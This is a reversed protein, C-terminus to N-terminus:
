DKKSSFSLLSKGSPLSNSENVWSRDLLKEIMIKKLEDSDSMTEAIRQSMLVSHNYMQRNYFYTLQKISSRYVWLFLASIIEVIAGSIIILTNINTDIPRLGFRDLDIVHIVVGFTIITFGIWM